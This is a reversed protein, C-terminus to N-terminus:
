VEMPDLGIDFADYRQTMTAAPPSIPQTAIPAINENGTNRCGIDCAVPQDRVPMDLAIVSPNRAIPKALKAHPASSSLYPGLGTSSAPADSSPSLM